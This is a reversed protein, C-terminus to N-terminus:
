YTTMMVLDAAREIASEVQQGNVLLPEVRVGTPDLGGLFTRYRAMLEDRRAPQVGGDGFRSVHQDVYLALCKAPPFRRALDIAAQLSEASRPSFDIPVLIRRLVPAWGPPVLWVSCRAEMALRASRARSGDDGVLLLDSGFDAAFARLRRVANGRLVDCGVALYEAPARFYQAVVARLAAREAAADGHRPASRAGPLLSVFRVEADLAAAPEDLLQGVPTAVSRGGGVFQPMRLPHDVPHASRCLRAVMSAYRLLHPDPQRALNGILLRCGAQGRRSADRYQQYIPFEGRGASPPRLM